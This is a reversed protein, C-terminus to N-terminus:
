DFDNFNFDKLQVLAKLIEDDGKNIRYILDETLNKSKGPNSGNNNKKNMTKTYYAQFHLLRMDKKTNRNESDM